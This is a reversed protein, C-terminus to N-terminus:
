IQEREGPVIELKDIPVRVFQGILNEDTSWNPDEMELPGFRIVVPVIQEIRGYGDYAWGDLPDLAVKRGPNASVASDWSVSEDTTYRFQVDKLAGPGCRRGPSSIEDCVRLLTGDVWVEASKGLGDTHEM